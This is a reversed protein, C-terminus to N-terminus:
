EWGAAFDFDFHPLIQDLQDEVLICCTEVMDEVMEPYDYIAYCLGEFTLLDRIRGIMSGVDVGIPYDRDSPHRAKIAEIDLKRNDLRFRESKIKEWDDPTEICSKIYRPITGHDDVPVEAILGDRNIITKIRDTQSIVRHEFLPKMWTNTGVTMIKDFSFFEDAQDNNKIGNDIFMKWTTFNQDWYGFEMNFTRDFPMYHMQANFRERDTMTGNWKERIKM